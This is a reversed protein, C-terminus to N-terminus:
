GEAAMEAYNCPGFMRQRYLILGHAAHYLAGCELPLQKTKDFLSCLHLVAREVWSQSLQEHTMAITLFELTHGTTGLDKALDATVGARSFYNSSFSGDPNQLRRATEIATQIKEDAQQWVGALEGGQDLHRNLAMAMGILRHSGGCASTHLDHELEVQMLREISWTQGDSAQWTHDTPLYTTLGILTWSFERNANRPVDRQVQNIWDALTYRHDDLIITEDPPLGCQALIALWQDAHGQGTKSGQELRTRLGVRGSAPDADGPEPVWGNMPGGALIHDVASVLRDGDSIQFDRQFALAGHLIQWAAHEQLTLRRQRYTYVLADDVKNQVDERSVQAAPEEALPLPSTAAPDQPDHCGCLGFIMVAAGLLLRIRCNQLNLRSSM